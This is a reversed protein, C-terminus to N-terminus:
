IIEFSSTSDCVIQRQLLQSEHQLFFSSQFAKCEYSSYISILHSFSFLTLVSQDFEPKYDAIALVIHYIFTHILECRVFLYADSYQVGPIELLYTIIKLLSIIISHNFVASKSSQIRESAKVRESAEV